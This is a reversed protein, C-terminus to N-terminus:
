PCFRELYREMEIKKMKEVVASEGTGISQMEAAAAAPAAPPPRAKEWAELLVDLQQNTYPRGGGSALGAVPKDAGHVVCPMGAAGRCLKIDCESCQASCSAATHGREGCRYCTIRTVWMEYGKKDRDDADDKRREVAAVIGETPLAQLKIAMLQVVEEWTWPWKGTVLAQDMEDRLQDAWRQLASPIKKILAEMLQEEHEYCRAPQMYFMQKFEEAAVETYVAKMGTKFFGTAEFREVVDRQERYSMAAPGRVVAALVGWGSHLARQISGLKAMLVKVHPAERNFTMKVNAALWSDAAAMSAHKMAREYQEKDMDLLEAAAPNKYEVAAAFQILWAEVKTPDLDTYLSTVEAQTFPPLIRPRDVGGAGGGGRGGGYADGGGGGGGDDEDADEDGTVPAMKASAESKVDENSQGITRRLAELEADVAALQRRMRTMTMTDRGTARQESSRRAQGSRQAPSFPEYAAEFEYKDEAELVDYQDQLEALEAARDALDHRRAANRWQQSKRSARQEAQPTLSAM